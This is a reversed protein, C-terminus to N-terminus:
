CHDIPNHNEQIAKSEGSEMEKNSKAKIGYSQLKDNRLFDIVSTMSLPKSLDATLLHYLAVVDNNIRGQMPGKRCSKCLGQFEEPSKEDDKVIILSPLDQFKSGLWIQWYRVKNANKFITTMM